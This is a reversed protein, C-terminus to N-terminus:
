LPSLMLVSYFFFCAICLAQYQGQCPSWCHQRRSATCHCQSCRRSHRAQYFSLHRSDLTRYYTRIVFHSLRVKCLCIRPRSANQDRTCYRITWFNACDRRPHSYSPPKWCLRNHCLCTGSNCCDRDATSPWTNPRPYCNPRFYGIHV